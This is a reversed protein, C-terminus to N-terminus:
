PRTLRSLNLCFDAMRRRESATGCYDFQYDKAIDDVRILQMLNLVSYKDFGTWDIKDIESRTLRSKMIYNFSLEGYKTKTQELFAVDIDYNLDTKEADYVKKVAQVLEEAISHLETLKNPTGQSLFSIEHAAFKANSTETLIFEYRTMSPTLPKRKEALADM